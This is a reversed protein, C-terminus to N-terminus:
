EDESEAPVDPVTATDTSWVPLYRRDYIVVNCDDHVHIQYPGRIKAPKPSQWV